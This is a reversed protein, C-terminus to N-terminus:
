EKEFFIDTCTAKVIQEQAAKVSQTHTHCPPHLLPLQWHLHGQACGEGACM